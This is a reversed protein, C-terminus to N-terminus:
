SIQLGDLGYQRLEHLKTSVVPTVPWATLVHSHYGQILDFQLSVPYHAAVVLHIPHKKGAQSTLRM